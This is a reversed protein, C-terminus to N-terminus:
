GVVKLRVLHKKEPDLTETIERGKAIFEESGEITTGGGHHKIYLDLGERRLRKLLNKAKPTRLGGETTEWVVMTEGLKTHQPYVMLKSRDPRDAPKGFGLLWFCKFTRCSHPREAYVTCGDRSVSSCTVNQPKGLEEISLHTCCESCRGCSRDETM